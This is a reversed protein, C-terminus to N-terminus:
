SKKHILHNKPVKTKNYGTKGSLTTKAEYFWLNNNPYHPSFYREIIREDNHKIDSKQVTNWPSLDIQNSPNHDRHCRTSSCITFLSYILSHYHYAKLPQQIKTLTYGNSSQRNSSLKGTAKYSTRDSGSDLIYKSSYGLSELTNILM